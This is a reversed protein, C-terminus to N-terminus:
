STVGGVTGLRLVVTEEVLCVVTLVVVGDDVMRRVVMRVVVGGAVALRVVGRVTVDTGNVGRGVGEVKFVRPVLGTVVLEVIDLTVAAIGLVVVRLVVIRVVTDVVLVVVRGRVVVELDVVGFAVVVALNVCVVTTRVLELASM